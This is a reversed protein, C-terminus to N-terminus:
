SLNVVSFPVFTSCFHFLFLCFYSLLLVLFACFHVLFNLTPPHSYAGVYCKKTPYDKEFLFDPGGDISLSLISDNYFVESDMLMSAYLHCLSHYSMTGCSGLEKDDMGIVDVIKDM